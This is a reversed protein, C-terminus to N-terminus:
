ANCLGKLKAQTDEYKGGVIGITPHYRFGSHNKEAWALAECASLMADVKHGQASNIFAKATHWRFHDVPFMLGSEALDLLQLARDYLREIDHLAILFLLEIKAQTQLNPFEAERALAAEYGDIAKEVEGMALYAKAQDVYAQAYDFKDGLAFYQDLLNLAVTPHSSALSSAQIRLYQAKDRARRLKEFFGAEIEPNWDSNRYWDKSTMCSLM